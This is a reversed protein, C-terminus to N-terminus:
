RRAAAGPALFETRGSDVREFFNNDVLLPEFEFDSPERDTWSLVEDGSLDAVGMARLTPKISLDFVTMDDLTLWVHVPLEAGSTPGARLLGLVTQVDAGYIDKGRFRVNGITVALPFGGALPTGEWTRLFGNSIAHCGHAASRGLQGLYHSAFKTLLLKAKGYREVMEPDALLGESVQRIKPIDADPRGEIRYLLRLAEFFRDTYSPGNAARDIDTM